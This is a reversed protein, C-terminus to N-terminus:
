DKPLKNQQLNLIVASSRSPRLWNWESNKGFDDRSTELITKVRTESPTKVQSRTLEVLMGGSRESFQPNPLNAENCADVIKEVGRGWSDIHGARCLEYRMM